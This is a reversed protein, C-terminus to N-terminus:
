ILDALERENKLFYLLGLFVFLISIAASTIYDGWVIQENFMSARVTELVGALPNIYLISWNLQPPLIKVPYMVPTLFFLLSTFYPLVQKVDRYKIQLFSFFLGIGLATAGTIILSPFLLAIGLPSPFIKYRLMIIILLVFTCIFDVLGVILTACPLILRPFSAKTILSRNATLSNSSRSLCSTFYSWFIMGILAFITYPINKSFFNTVSVLVNSLIYSLSLPQIAAWFAGLLIPNYRLRIDKWALFLFLERHQWLDAANLGLTKSPTIVKKM